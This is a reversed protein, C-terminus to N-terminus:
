VFDYLCYCARQGTGRIKMILDLMREGLIPVIIHIEVQKHRLLTPVLWPLVLQFQCATALFHERPKQNVLRFIANEFDFPLIIRQFYSFFSFQSSPGM